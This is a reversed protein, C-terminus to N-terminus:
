AETKDVLLAECILCDLYPTRWDAPPDPETEVDEDIEMVKPNPLTASLDAGSISVLSKSDDRAGL